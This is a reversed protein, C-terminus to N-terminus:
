AGYATAPNVCLASKAVAPMGPPDSSSALPHSPSLYRGGPRAHKKNMRAGMYYRSRTHDVSRWAWWNECSFSRMSLRTSAKARFCSPLTARPGCLTDPARGWTRAAAGCAGRAAGEGGGRAERTGLPVLWAPDQDEAHRPARVVKLQSHDAGLQGPSRRSRITGLVKHQSHEARLKQQSM